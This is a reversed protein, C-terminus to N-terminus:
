NRPGRPAGERRILGTLKMREPRVARGQHASLPGVSAAADTGADAFGAFCLRLHMRGGLTAVVSRCVHAALRKFDAPDWRTYLSREDQFRSARGLLPSEFIPVVTELDLITENVGLVILPPMGSKSILVGKSADGRHRRNRREDTAPRGTPCFSWQKGM